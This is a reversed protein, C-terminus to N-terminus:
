NCEVVGAGRNVCRRIGQPGFCEVVGAGRSECRTLGLPPVLSTTAPRQGTARQVTSNFDESARRQEAAVNGYKWCDLRRRRIEAERADQYQNLSASTMWSMCLGQDSLSNVYAQQEELSACGTLSLTLVVSCTALVRRFLNRKPKMKFEQLPSTVVQLDVSFSVLKAIYIL